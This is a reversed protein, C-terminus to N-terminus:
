RKMLGILNGLPYFSKFGAHSFTLYRSSIQFFIITDCKDKRKELILSPTWLFILFWCFVWVRLQAERSLSKCVLVEIKTQTIFKVERGIELQLVLDLCLLDDRVRSLTLM